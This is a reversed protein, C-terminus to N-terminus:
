PTVSDRDEDSRLFPSMKVPWQCVWNAALEEYAPLTPCLDPFLPGDRRPHAKRHGCSLQARPVPSHLGVMAVLIRSHVADDRVHQDPLESRPSGPGPATCRSAVLDEGTPGATGFCWGAGPTIAM